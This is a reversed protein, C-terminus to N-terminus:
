LSILTSYVQRAILVVLPLQPKEVFFEPNLVKVPTSVPFPVSGGRHLYILNSRLGKFLKLFRLLNM